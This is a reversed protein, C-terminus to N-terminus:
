GPVFFGLGCFVATVAWMAMTAQKENMRYYHPLVWKLTYPNPVELTGDERVKSYKAM